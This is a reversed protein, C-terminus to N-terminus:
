DEPYRLSNRMGLMAQSVISVLDGEEAVNRAYTALGFQLALFYRALIKPSCTGALNGKERESEFFAEFATLTQANLESVAQMGQAPLCDSGAELTAAAIFCGGPLEPNGVMDVVSLLYKRLRSQLSGRKELLKEFHPQGYLRAYTKLASVFLQEKNGFAAYLSPKNISMAETLDSLSTGSFGNRWFVHMARELARDTDFNRKRGVTM